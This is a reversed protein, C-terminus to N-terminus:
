ARTSATPSTPRCSTSRTTSVVSNRVGEAVGAKLKGVNIATIAKWNVASGGNSPSRPIRNRLPALVPFLSKAPKELNTIQLATALQFGQTTAKALAEGDLAGAALAQQFAALTEATVGSAAQMAMTM